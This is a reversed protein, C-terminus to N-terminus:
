PTAARQYFVTLHELQLASAIERVRDARDAAPVDILARLSSLPASPEVSWAIKVIGNRAGRVSLYHGVMRFLFYYGVVNPGPLLVLAISGLSLLSDIALWFRHREFDANLSRRLIERAHAEVLTDPYVLTAASRTRLQWLLRQEAISEAVWRLTRAKVRGAFSRPREREHPAKRREREAEALMERFNHVLKRAPGRPAEDPESGHDQHECYLEYRDTGVPVLFVHV